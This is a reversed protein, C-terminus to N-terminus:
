CSYITYERVEWPALFYLSTFQIPFHLLCPPSHLWSDAPPLYFFVWGGMFDVSIGSPLNIGEQVITEAVAVDDDSFPLKARKIVKLSSDTWIVTDPSFLMSMSYNHCYIWNVGGFFFCNTSLWFINILEVLSGGEFHKKGNHWKLQIKSFNGWIDVFLKPSESAKFILNTSFYITWVPTRYDLLSLRKIRSHISEHFNEAFLHSWSNTLISLCKTEWASM